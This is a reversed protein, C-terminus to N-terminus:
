DNGLSQMEAIFEQMYEGVDAPKSKDCFLLVINYVRQVYLCTCSLQGICLLYM